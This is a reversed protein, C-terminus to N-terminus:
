LHLLKASVTDLLPDTKSDFRKNTARSIADPSISPTSAATAIPVAVVSALLWTVAAFSKIRVSSLLQSKYDTM